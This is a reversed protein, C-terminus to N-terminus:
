APPLATPAAAAPQPYNTAQDAQTQTPPPTTPAQAQALAPLTLAAGLVTPALFRKM